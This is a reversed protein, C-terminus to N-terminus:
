PTRQGQTDQEKRDQLTRRDSSRLRYLEQAAIREGSPLTVEFTRILESGTLLAQQLDDARLVPDGWGTQALRSLELWDVYLYDANLSAIARRTDDPFARVAQAVASEDYTTAYRTGSPKYLPTADGLTLLTADAPITARLYADPPGDDPSDGFLRYNTFYPSGTAILANPGGSRARQGAFNGLTIGSTAAVIGGIVFAVARRGGASGAVRSAGDASAQAFLLALPVLVPVLFRSQVHTMTAWVIIQAALSATLALTLWRRRRSVFGLVVAALALPAALAWQAHTIGRAIPRGPRAAPDNPDPWVLLSMADFLSGDFTHARAYREIQEASWHGSGFLSTLMPFVPNGSALTNRVLWPALMVLGAAGAVAFSSVLARRPLRAIMIASLVPVGFLLATPKCGCAAGALVGVLVGRRVAPLGPDAAMQAGAFLLLAMAMENYSLSGTVVAWPTALVIAGAAACAIRAPRGEDPLLSRAAAAASWACGITIFAHLLQCAILLEGSESVFGDAPAGSLSALHVFSAEIYSPLYSYVSHDLPWVRGEAHWERPLQLHYVLSDYGGFESAWLWGPPSCAAALLVGAAPAAAIWIWSPPGASRASALMRPLSRAAIAVGIAVPAIAAARFSLLGAVGLLHSLSLMAALGLGLAAANPSRAGRALVSVLGTGLGFAGVLYIAAIAGQTLVLYLASASGALPGPSGISAAGCACVSVAIAGIAVTRSWGSAAAPTAHDAATSADIEPM